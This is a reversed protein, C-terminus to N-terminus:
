LKKGRTFTRIIDRKFNKWKPKLYNRYMDRGLKPIGLISGAEGYIDELSQGLTGGETIWNKGGIRIKHETSEPFREDKGPMVKVEMSDQQANKSQAYRNQTSALYSEGIASNKFTESELLKIEANTKRQNISDIAVQRLKSIKGLKHATYATGAQGIAEGIGKGYDPKTTGYGVSASPNYSPMGLAALPHIGYLQSASNKLFEFEKHKFAIAAEQQSKRSKGKGGTLASGLASGLGSALAGSAWVPLAM